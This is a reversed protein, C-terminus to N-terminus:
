FASGRPAAPRTECRQSASSRQPASRHPGWVAEPGCPPLRAPQGRNGSSTTRRWAATRTAPACSPWVSRRPRCPPSLPAARGPGAGAGASAGRVFHRGRRPPPRPGLTDGPPAPPRWLSSPMASRTHPPTHSKYPRSNHKVRVTEM